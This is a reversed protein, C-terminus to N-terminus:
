GIQSILVHCIQVNDLTYNVALLADFTVKLVQIVDTVVSALIERQSRMNRVKIYSIMAPPTHPIEVM